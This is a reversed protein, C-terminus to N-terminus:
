FHFNYNMLFTIGSGNRNLLQPDAPNHSSGASTYKYHINDYKIGFGMTGKESFNSELVLQLHFGPASKYKFTYKLDGLQTADVKMTGFSYIGGGAGAKLRLIEGGKIPIIFSPTISIGMRNFSAKANKLNESLSSGLFSGNLTIDFFDNILYGYEAGIGFGGGTSLTVDKNNEDIFWAYKEFGIGASLRLGIHSRPKKLSVPEYAQEKLGKGDIMAKGSTADVLEMMPVGSWVGMNYYCSIYYIKGPETILRLRVPSAFSFSFIHDGPQISFKYFAGNRLKVVPQNDALITIGTTSGTYNPLRYFYIESPVAGPVNDQSFTALSFLLLLASTFFLKMDSLKFNM